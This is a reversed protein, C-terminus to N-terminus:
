SSEPLVSIIDENIGEYQHRGKRVLRGFSANEESDVSESCAPATQPCLVEVGAGELKWSQM